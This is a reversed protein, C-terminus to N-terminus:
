TDVRSRSGFLRTALAWAHGLMAPASRALTTVQSFGYWHSRSPPLHTRFVISRAGSNVLASRKRTTTISKPTLNLLRRLRECRPQWTSTTGAVVEALDM